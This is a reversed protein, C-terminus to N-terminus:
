NKEATVVRFIGCLDKHMEINFFGNEALIERLSNEQNIGIEYAIKGGKKLANKWIRTVERYFFLGDEGANLAMEPEFSVEKQLANMDELSLYPPNSVVVDFDTFNKAFDESLVDGLVARAKSSNLTINEQLFGFAKGSLEVCTVDAGCIEKELSIGICGSGSCLDVIKPSAKKTLNIVTEVLTETDQRPILVGEGVKFPYGFFEWEGVIYQLPFGEARRKAFDVLRIKDGLDISKEFMMPIEEHRIKLVFEALISAEFQYNEIGSNKLIGKIEAFIERFSTVM